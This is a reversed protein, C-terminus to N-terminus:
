LLDKKFLNELVMQSFPTLKDWMRHRITDMSFFGGTEIEESNTRFPGNSYARFIASYENENVHKLLFKDLFEVNLEIGIEERMERRITKEYSEGQDVHGAVSISWGGPFTDKTMSRKHLFLDGKSNFILVYAARHILSPNQNCERRTASGIVQDHENVVDLIEELNDTYKHKVM